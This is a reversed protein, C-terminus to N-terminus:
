AQSGISSCRRRPREASLVVVGAIPLQSAQIAFPYVPCRDALHGLLGLWRGSRCAYRTFRHRHPSVCTFILCCTPGETENQKLRVLLSQEVIGFGSNSIITEIGAALASPLSMKPRLNSVDSVECIRCSSSVVLTAEKQTYKCPRRRGRVQM